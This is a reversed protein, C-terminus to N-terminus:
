IALPKRSESLGTRKRSPAYPLRLASSFSGAKRRLALKGATRRFLPVGLDEEIERVAHSVASRTLCLADASRSMSLTSAVSVFLRYRDLRIM